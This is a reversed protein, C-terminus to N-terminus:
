LHYVTKDLEFRSWNNLNPSFVCQRYIKAASNLIQGL